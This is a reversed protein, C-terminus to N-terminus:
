ATTRGGLGALDDVICVRVLFRHVVRWVSGGDVDLRVEVIANRDDPFNRYRPDDPGIFSYRYHARNVSGRQGLLSPPIIETPGNPDLRIEVRDGWEFRAESM